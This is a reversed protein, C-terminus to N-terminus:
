NSVFVSKPQVIQLSKKRLEPNAIEIKMEQMKDNSASNNQTFTVEYNSRLSQEFIKLLQSLNELKKKPVISIGGTEETIKKLAKEDVGDYYDDGIGIAYVPIKTRISLEIAEKTKTKGFTNVGDSILIIARQAGSNQIKSFAELVQILSDWISTSGVIAQTKSSNTQGAIIGGGIYGSPPVFRIKGIQDKAKQFDSTLDQELGVKGTFSVVGIKDKEAKLFDDIFTQAAKKESPLMREQSASADIMIMIELSKDAALSLSLDKLGAIQIDSTKLDKFFNGNEDLVDFQLKSKTEQSFVFNGLCLITLLSFTIKYKM